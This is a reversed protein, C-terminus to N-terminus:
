RYGEPCDYNSKQLRIGHLVEYKEDPRGLKVNTVASVDMGEGIGDSTNSGFYIVDRNNRPTRQNWAYPRSNDVPRTPPALGGCDPCLQPGPSGFKFGGICQHFIVHCKDCQESGGDNVSVRRLPHLRNNCVPCVTTVSRFVM